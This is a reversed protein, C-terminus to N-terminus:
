DSILIHATSRRSCCDLTGWIQSLTSGGGKKIEGGRLAPSGNMGM